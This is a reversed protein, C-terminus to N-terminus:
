KDLAKIFNIITQPNTGSKWGNIFGILAIDIDKKKLYNSLVSKLEADKQTFISASKGAILSAIFIRLKIM